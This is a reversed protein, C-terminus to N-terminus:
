WAYRGLLQCVQRAPSTGPKLGSFCVTKVVITGRRAQTGFPDPQLPRLRHACAFLSRVRRRAAPPPFAVAKSAGWKAPAIVRAWSGLKHTATQGGLPNVAELRLTM